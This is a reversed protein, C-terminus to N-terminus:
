HAAVKSDITTLLKGNRQVERDIAALEDPTLLHLVGNYTLEVHGDGISYAYSYCQAQLQRPNILTLRTVEQQRVPPACSNCLSDLRFEISKPTLVKVGTKVVPWQPNGYVNTKLFVVGNQEGFYYSMPVEPTSVYRMDQPDAQVRLHGGWSGAFGNDAKPLLLLNAMPIEPAAANWTHPRVSHAAELLNARQASRGYWLGGRELGAVIAVILLLAVLAVLLVLRKRSTTRSGRASLVPAGCSPCAATNAPLKAACKTCYMNTRRRRGELADIVQWSENEGIM